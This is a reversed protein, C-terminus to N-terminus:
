AGRESGQHAPGVKLASPKQMLDNMQQYTAQFFSNRSDLTAGATANIMKGYEEM